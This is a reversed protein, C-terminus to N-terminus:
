PGAAGPQQTELGARVWSLLRRHRLRRSHGRASQQQKPLAQAPTWASLLTGFQRQMAKGLRTCLLLCCISRCMRGLAGLCACHCRQHALFSLPAGQQNSGEQPADGATRVVGEGPRLPLCGAM